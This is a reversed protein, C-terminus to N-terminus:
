TTGKLGFGMLRASLHGPHLLDQALSARLTAMERQDVHTLGVFRRAIRVWGQKRTVAAWAIRVLRPILNPLM